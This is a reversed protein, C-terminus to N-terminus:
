AYASGNQCVNPKQNSRTQTLIELNEGIEDDNELLLREYQKIFPKDYFLAILEKIRRDIDYIM